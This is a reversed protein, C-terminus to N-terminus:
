SFNLGYTGPISSRNKDTILAVEKKDTIYAVYTVTFHDKDMSTATTDVMVFSQYKVSTGKRPWELKIYKYDPSFWWEQNNELGFQQM